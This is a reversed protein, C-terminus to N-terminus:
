LPEESLEVSLAGAPPVPNRPERVGSEEGPDNRVWVTVTDWKNVMAGPEPWQTTVIGHMVPLAGDPNPGVLVVGADHGALWANLAQM